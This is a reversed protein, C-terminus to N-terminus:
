IPGEAWRLLQGTRVDVLFVSTHQSGLLMSGDLAAVPSRNVLDPVGAPLRQLCAVARHV